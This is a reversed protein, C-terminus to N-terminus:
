EGRKKISLQYNKIPLRKMDISLPCNIVTESATTLLLYDNLDTRKRIGENNISFMEATESNSTGEYVLVITVLTAAGVIAAVAVALIIRLILLLPNRKAPKASNPARAMANAASISNKVANLSANAASQSISLFNMNLKILKGLPLLPIGAIGYFKQGAKHEQEEIETRVAKRAFYLRSKVTGGSCQMVDAIEEISLENFYFLVITQRHVESLSELIRNLREKLDAREAYVAPILEDSEEEEFSEIDREADLLLAISKRKMQDNCLNRAIIQLWVSFTQPNQLTNLKKWATIFTKQLVDEADSDNKLIMKAFAYIKGCYIVYLEEFSKMDGRQAAAVFQVQEATMAM